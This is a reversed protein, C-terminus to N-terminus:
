VPLCVFLCVFLCILCVFLCVFLCVYVYRVCVYSCIANLLFFLFLVCVCLCPLVVCCMHELTRKGVMYEHLTEWQWQCASLYICSGCRITLKAANVTQNIQYKSIYQSYHDQHADGHLVITTKNKNRMNSVRSDSEQISQESQVITSIWSKGEIKRNM